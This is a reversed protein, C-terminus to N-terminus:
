PRRDKEIWENLAAMAEPDGENWERLFDMPSLVDSNLTFDIAAACQKRQERAEDRERELRAAIDETVAILREAYDLRTEVEDLADLLAAINDPSCRAIHDANKENEGDAYYTGEVYAIEKSFGRLAPSPQARIWHCNVGEAPDSRFRQWPGPTVGELGARMEACLKAIDVSM